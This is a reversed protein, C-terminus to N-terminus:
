TSRPFLENMQLGVANLVDETDCGAWCIILVRGNDGEGIHLSPNRDGRGRGHGAVPCRAKWGAGNKEVGEFRDLVMEVQRV